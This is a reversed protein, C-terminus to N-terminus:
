VQAMKHTHLLRQCTLRLAWVKVCGRSCLSLNINFLQNHSGKDWYSLICTVIGPKHPHIHSMKHSYRVLAPNEMPSRLLADDRRKYALTISNKPNLYYIKFSWWSWKLWTAISLNYLGAIKVTKTLKQTHVHLDCFDKLMWHGQSGPRTSSGKWCFHFDAEALANLLPKATLVRIICCHALVQPKKSSMYPIFVFDYLYFM